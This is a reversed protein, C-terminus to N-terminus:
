LSHNSLIALMSPEVINARLNCSWTIGMQERILMECLAEARKKNVAFTDDYIAIDMIGFREHLTKMM